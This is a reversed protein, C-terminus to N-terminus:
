YTIYALYIHYSFYFAIFINLNYKKNKSFYKWSIMNM